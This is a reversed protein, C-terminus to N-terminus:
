SFYTMLIDHIETKKDSGLTNQYLKVYTWTNRIRDISHPAFRHIGLAADTSFPSSVVGVSANDRPIDCRWLRFKRKLSNTGAMFHKMASAGTLHGLTSIGHQYENWVELHSFPLYPTVTSNSITGEGAINATIELNTFTKDIQPEPNGVLTMSFPKQVGFFSCYNGTNHKWITGNKRVWIGTDDLNNFFPTDEYSYFSTFATMKESWALATSSNAFIIEQNIKDYFGRFADNSGLPNWSIEPGPINNKSWANMGGAISLNQVQGNFLYISKDRSDMFYIGSPTNIISWKNSCGVTDSFYKKGQVKGSNAIEIPVGTTSAIQVNENYLIQSIGTDQFAIIQDGVKTLKNLNGKDGDFELNSALTVNTWLDVDAGSTKTKSYTVLNPYTFTNVSDDNIKRHVFFNDRQTYVPNLLNFIGPRMLTNDKQGRNRDYRGDINVRSECMFSLIEVIQNQDEESFAYTKLCDYRQYFTDGETWYLDVSNVSSSLKVAEGATQWKNNKVANKSQGGFPNSVEKYLEGLWLFNFAGGFLNGINVASNTFQMNTDGWFTISSSSPPVIKGLNNYVVGDNAYPLAPISANGSNTSANLAIVAHSTSKYRMYVPSSLTPTSTGEDGSPIIDEKIYTEYGNTNYLVKDINPYYNIESSTSKQRPLKINLVHDNETLHMKASIDSFNVPSNIYGSSVSYLINSERKTKLWSSAVDEPRPDNNLSGNRQWPYVLYTYTDKATTIKDDYSTDSLVFSDNWLYNAVLRQGAHIDINNHLVNVGVEGSGFKFNNEQKNHSTELQVSSTQISHASANATIPIAGVVRLKLKSTDYNQVEEDFEIDPSNLTVISQDVFFQTNSEFLVSTDKRVYPTSYRAWSGQIEIQQRKAATGGVNIGSVGKATPLSEYHKYALGVGDKNGTIIRYDSNIKPFTIKYKTERTSDSDHNYFYFEYNEPGGDAVINKYYYEKNNIALNTYLKFTNNVVPHYYELNIRDGYEGWDHRIYDNYHPDTIDALHQINDYPVTFAHTSFFVYKNSAANAGKKLLVCGSFYVSNTQDIRPQQQPQDPYWVDLHTEFKLYGRNLIADINASPVWAVLVYMNTTLSHTAFYGTNNFSDIEADTKSVNEDVEADADQHEPDDTSTSAMYPRFYWSAQAYPSNDIRDAANFVTPNLVGQCLVQREGVGPYVIVPRIQKYVSDFNAGYAARISSINITSKAYVLDAVRSQTTSDISVAPYKDNEVDDMFVPESWEGTYKQLQFGFRYKEMGKFTSINQLSGKTLTHTNSYIGDTKDFVIRKEVNAMNNNYFAISIANQERQENYYDQIASVSANKEKFNGIFLTSDKAAFTGAVIEKGGIYLLETPDMTAGVTGNDIFVVYNNTVNNITEEHINDEDLAIDDLLKVIPTGDISTRQISYLRIFSFSTDVSSIKIKFSNVVGEEPSAGRDEHTLYYLSSTYVLNTQQGYKNVYSFCYQIVGPAFMEGGTDIRSIEVTENLAVAPIFDFFTAVNATAATNWKNLTATDAINIIRPQNLGDVWYVKQIHEAEYSVMTELPYEVSFNLNGNFLRTCTMETKAANSYFLKYINDPKTGTGHTFIVLNNNLVATGIPTGTIATSLTIPQTGKENVWSMMTNGENTSLRLNVNEFAFESNFASVSMDRNMGKTKWGTIKKM